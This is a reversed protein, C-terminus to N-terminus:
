AWKHKFYYILGTILGSLLILILLGNSFNQFASKPKNKYVTIVTSSTDRISEYRKYLSNYVAMSDVKCKLYIYNNRIKIEPSTVRGIKLEKIESLYANGLSDCKILAIISSSDPKTFLVTDLQKEIITTTTTVGTTVPKTSKCSCIIVLAFIFLLKKM